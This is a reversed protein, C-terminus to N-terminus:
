IRFIIEKKSNITEYYYNWKRRLEKNSLIIKCEVIYVDNTTIIKFDPNYKRNVEDYEFDILFDCRDIDLVDYNKEFYNLCSYEIKSDCRIKKNNFIYECKISKLFLPIEVNQGKL